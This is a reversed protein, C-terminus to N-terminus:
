ALEGECLSGLKGGNDAIPFVRSAGGSKRQMFNVLSGFTRM